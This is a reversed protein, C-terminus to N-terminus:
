SAPRVDDVKIGQEALAGLMGRGVVSPVKEKAARVLDEEQVMTAGRQQAFGESAGIIMQLASKRVFPPMPSVADKLKRWLDEDWPMKRM